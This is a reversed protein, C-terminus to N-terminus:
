KKEPKSLCSSQLVCSAATLKNYESLIKKLDQIALHVMVSANIQKLEFAMGSGYSYILASFKYM